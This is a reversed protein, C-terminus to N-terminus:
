KRKFVLIVPMWTQTQGPALYALTARMTTADQSIVNLSGSKGDSRSLRCANEGNLSCKEIKTELVGTASFSQGQGGLILNGRKSFVFIEYNKENESHEQVWTETSEIKGNDAHAQLYGFACALLFIRMGMTKMKRM